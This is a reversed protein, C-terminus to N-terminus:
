PEPSGLPELCGPARGACATREPGVRRAGRRRLRARLQDRPRLSPERPAGPARSGWLAGPRPALVGVAPTWRGRRSARLLPSAGAQAGPAGCRGQPEEAGPGASGTGARPPAALGGRSAYVPLTGLRQVSDSWLGQRQQTLTAAVNRAPLAGTPDPHRWWAQAQVWLVLTVM